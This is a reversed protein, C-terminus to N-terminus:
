ENLWAGFRGPNKAKSRARRLAELAGKRDGTLAKSVALETLAWVSDPNADCALDFYEIARPVDKKDLLQVLGTDMAMGLVGALARELVRLKEPRKEHQARRRLDLIQVEVDRRVEPRNEQLASLGSYITHTFEEQDNFEQKERKAGDRIAKDKELAEARTRLAANDALGSLMKSAQRYEKWAAYFTTPNNSLSPASLSSPQKPLSLPHTEPQLAMRCQKLVSGLLLKRWRTRPPGNTLDTSDVCSTHTASSKWSITSSCSRRM